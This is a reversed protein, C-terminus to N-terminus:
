KEFMRILILKAWLIKSAAVDRNEMIFAATSQLKDFAADCLYRVLSSNGREQM